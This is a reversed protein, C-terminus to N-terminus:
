CQKHLADLHIGAWHVQAHKCHIVVDVVGSNTLSAHLINDNINM